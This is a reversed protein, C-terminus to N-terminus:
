LLSLKFYVPKQAELALLILYKSNVGGFLGHVPFAVIRITPPAGSAISHSATGFTEHPLQRGPTISFSFTCDLFKYRNGLYGCCDLYIQFAHINIPLQAELTLLILYKNDVGGFSGYVPFAVTRITPPAESDISDVGPV